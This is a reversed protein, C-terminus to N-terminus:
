KCHYETTSTRRRPSRAGKGTRRLAHLVERRQKRRICIGVKNSNLLKFPSQYLTRLRNHNFRPSTGDIKTVPTYRAPHFVRSSPNQTAHWTRSYANILELQKLISPTHLVRHTATTNIPGRQVPDTRSHSKSRNRAMDHRSQTLHATDGLM